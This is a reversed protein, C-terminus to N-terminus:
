GTQLAQMQKSGLGPPAVAAGFSASTNPHEANFFSVAIWTKGLVDKYGCLAWWPQRAWGMTSIEIINEQGEESQPAAERDWLFVRCM